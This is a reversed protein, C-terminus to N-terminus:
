AEEGGGERENRRRAREQGMLSHRRPLEPREEDCVVAKSGKRGESELRGLAKRVEANWDSWMVIFLEVLGVLNLAVCQGIWLGTLGWGHWALWVGGPLAIVYYSIVNVMAGIHQRGMGRLTGGCSNNMADGIQFLALLPLVAATLMVVKPDDNFLKAYVNRVALLGILVAIAPGLSVLVAAYFARKAGDANSAGLQNAVRSSAAVGIGFPIEALLQDTTMIVSQAALSTQGLTGAVLAVIEFAWWETGVHIIGLLALRAFTRLHSLRIARRTFGGWASSGRTPSSFTYLLLLLFSIWYSIGTALPAGYLGLNLSHIFLYNLLANITSTILLVYTGPRPIELIRLNLWVVVTQSVAELVPPQRGQAQLFKKVAEFYVYGLGGPALIWLFRSADKALWLEQGLAIFLPESFMWILVVPIYFLGLVFFARQLIVGLDHPDSSGTFSASALTDIATAGGLAVLWGTCMAFMYGFAAVSLAEPSSRGVILISVTQLSNQLMYSAIVPLAFKFQLLCERLFSRQSRPNFGNSIDDSGAHDESISRKSLLPSNETIPTHSAATPTSDEETDADYTQTHASTPRTTVAPPSLTRTM